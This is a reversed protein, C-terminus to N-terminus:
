ENTPYRPRYTEIVRERIDGSLATEIVGHLTSAHIISLGGWVYDAVLGVHSPEGSQWRILAVDGPLWEGGVPSGFEAVLGSQLMNDWPERGYRAPWETKRPYAAARLSLDVLGLCDVAWPKRGLHRWRVGLMSRAHTIAQQASM